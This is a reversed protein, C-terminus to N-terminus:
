ANPQKWAPSAAIMQLVLGLHRDAWDLADTDMKEIWQRGADTSWKRWKEIPHSQCGIQLTDHTYGISWKEVQMTKIYVMDGFCRINAGSLNAGRLNADRARAEEVAQRVNQANEATYLVTNDWRNRIEIM